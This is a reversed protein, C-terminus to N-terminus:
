GARRYIEYAVFHLRSGKTQEAEREEKRALWLTLGVILATTGGIIGLGLLLEPIGTM